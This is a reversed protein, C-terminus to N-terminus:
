AYIRARKQVRRSPCIPKILERAVKPENAEAFTVAMWVKQWKEWLKM